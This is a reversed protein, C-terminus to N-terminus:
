AEEFERIREDIADKVAQLNKAWHDEFQAATMFTSDVLMAADERSMGRRRLDHYLDARQDAVENGFGQPTARGDFPIPLHRSLERTLRNPAAPRERMDAESAPDPYADSM